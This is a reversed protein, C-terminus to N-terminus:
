HQFLVSCSTNFCAASSCPFWWVSCFLRVWNRFTIHIERESHYILAVGHTLQAQLRQILTSSSLDEMTNVHETRSFITNRKDFCWYSSRSRWAEQAETEHRLLVKKAPVIRLSLDLYPWLSVIKHLTLHALEPRSTFCTIWKSNYIICKGSSSNWIIFLFFDTGETIINDSTGMSDM